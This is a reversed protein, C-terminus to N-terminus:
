AGAAREVALLVVSRPAATYTSESVAVADQPLRIDDPSPLATDIIRRWVRGDNRGAPPLEFVLPEWYANFMAHVTYRGAPTCATLALSHSDTSWDPRDLAVGHWSVHARALQDILTQGAARPGLDRGHRLATLLRVFRLMDHHEFHQRWDLWSLENDQCWANNNGHQTHRLEDGMRFMPTGASLMTITLLNKMQRRRLTEVASDDTPGEMGCNWSLDDSTGDRNGEGNMENHKGNYSVLDNLTFGDHCTVFNISQEVERQEHEYLDPSGILRCALARVADGDGKV